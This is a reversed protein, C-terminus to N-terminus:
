LKDCLFKDVWAKFDAYDNYAPADEDADARLYGAIKGKSIIVLSPYYRVTDYMSTEKMEDFMVRYVLIGKEKAYELGYERLRDATTCGGKDVLVAFSKKNEILDEYEGASLEMYETADGYYEEDLTVRTNDFWGSVAAMFLLGGFLVVVLAIILGLVKMQKKKEASM